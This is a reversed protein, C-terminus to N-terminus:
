CNVPPSKEIDVLRVLCRPHLGATVPKQRQIKPELKLTCMGAPSTPHETSGFIVRPTCLSALVGWTIYLFFNPELM